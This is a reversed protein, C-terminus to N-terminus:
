SSFSTRPAGALSVDMRFGRVPYDSFLPDSGIAIIKADERPERGSSPSWPVDSEITLIVDAKDFQGAAPTVQYLPHNQPFNIWGGGSYVGVGLAECLKVFPAVAEPDRGLAGVVAI